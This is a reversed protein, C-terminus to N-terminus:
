EVTSNRTEDSFVNPMFLFGGGAMLGNMTTSVPIDVFLFQLASATYLWPASPSSYTYNFVQSEPVVAVLASSDQVVEKKDVPTLYSARIPQTTKGTLYQAYEYPIRYWQEGAEEYSTENEKGDGYVWKPREGNYYRKLKVYYRSGDMYISDGPQIDSTRGTADYAAQHLTQGASNFWCSSLGMSVIGIMSMRLFVKIM